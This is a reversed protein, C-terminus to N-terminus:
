WGPGAAPGCRRGRCVTGCRGGFAGHREARCPGSRRSGSLATIIGCMLQKPAAPFSFCPPLSRVMAAIASVASPPDCPPCRPACRPMAIMKVLGAAAATRRSLSMPREAFLAGGSLAAGAVRARLESPARGVAPLSRSFGATRTQAPKAQYHRLQESVLAELRASSPLRVAFTDCIPSSAGVGCRRPDRCVTASRRAPATTQTTAAQRVRTKEALTSPVPNLLQGSACQLRRMLNYNTIDGKPFKRDVQATLVGGVVLGSRKRRLSAACRDTERQCHTPDQWCPRQRGNNTDPRHESILM